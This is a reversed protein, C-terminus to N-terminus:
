PLPCPASGLSLPTIWPYHRAFPLRGCHPRLYALGAPNLGQLFLSDAGGSGSVENVGNAGNAGDVTGDPFIRPWSLSFRYHGIGLSQMLDLDEEAPHYADCAIDGTHGNFTKGPVHSFHDWISPGRARGRSPEARSRIPPVQRGWVFNDSFQM